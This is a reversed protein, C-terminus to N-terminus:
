ITAKQKLLITNLTKVTNNLLSEELSDDNNIKHELESLSVHRKRLKSIFTELINMKKEIPVKQLENKKFHLLFQKIFMEILLIKDYYLTDNNVLNLQLIKNGISNLPQHTIKILSMKNELSFEHIDVIHELLVSYIETLKKVSDIKLHLEVDEVTFNKKYENNIDFITKKYVFLTADKSNLKLFSHNDDGIQGIFEVYYYFSRECHHAVLDINKTYLLLINFVHTIVRVGNKIVYKMYSHNKMYISECIQTLYEQLIGMYKAFLQSVNCNDIDENYNNINQLNNDKKVENLKGKSSKLYTKKNKLSNNKKM